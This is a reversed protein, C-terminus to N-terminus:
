QVFDMLFETKFHEVFWSPVGSLLENTENTHENNLLYHFDLGNEQLTILFVCASM